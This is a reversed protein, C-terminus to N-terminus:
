EEEKEGYDPPLRYTGLADKLTKLVEFFAGIEDDSRYWGKEDLSDIIDEGDKITRSIGLLFDATSVQESTLIEVAEEYRELKNLLNLIFFCAVLLLLVGLVAATIM